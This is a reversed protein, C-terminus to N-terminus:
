TDKDTIVRCILKKIYMGIIEFTKGKQQILNNYSGINAVFHLINQYQHNM